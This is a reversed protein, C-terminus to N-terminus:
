VNNDEDMIGFGKQYFDTALFDFNNLGTYKFDEFIDKSNTYDYFISKSCERGIVSWYRLPIQNMIYRDNTTMFIQMDSKNVKKVVIDTIKKSSEFDLGEGIDDILMCFSINKLKAYHLLILLSLSRYMGQSMERQSVTYKGDEEVSLGYLGDIEEIDINSVEYGLDQMGSMIESTFNEGFEERGIYFTHILTETDDIDKDNEDRTYDKVLKKKELQNAFMYNRLSRGWEVFSEFYYKGQSNQLTIILQNDPIDSEIRNNDMDIFIRKERDLLVKDDFILVEKTITKNKFGLIYKYTNEGETFIIEFNESPSVTQKLSIQGSFLSAIQRILNLTRSKGSANKGVLLNLNDFYAYDDNSGVISWERPEGAYRIYKLARIIM